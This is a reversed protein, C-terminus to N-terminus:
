QIEEIEFIEHRDMSLWYKISSKRVLEWYTNSDLGYVFNIEKLEAIIIETIEPKLTLRIKRGLYTFEASPSVPQDNIVTLLGHGPTAGTSVQLGDNFCSVPPISGAFSRVNFEDVGTNFYERARIGMKVGIIAFVGLHRHLENALVGSNWEDMGYKKIIESVSERLDDFYFSPDTPMEKIVQNKAVTEGKLIRITSEQLGKLDSPICDSVNGLTKSVFLEPYHLFLPTMEDTAEFSFKHNESGAVNFYSYIKEAYRTNISAISLLFEKDYFVADNLNFKRVIKVPIEQKLM